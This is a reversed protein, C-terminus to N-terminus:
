YKNSRRNGRLLLTYSSHSISESYTITDLQLSMDIWANNIWYVLVILIWSLRNTYYLDYMMMMEDFHLKNDGNYVLCIAWKVNILLCINNCIYSIFVFIIYEYLYRSDSKIYCQWTINILENPWGSITLVWLLTWRDRPFRLTIDVHDERTAL